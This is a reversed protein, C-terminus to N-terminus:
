PLFGSDRLNPSVFLPNGLPIEISITLAIRLSEGEFSTELIKNEPKKFNQLNM